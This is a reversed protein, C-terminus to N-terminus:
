GVTDGDCDGASLVGVRGCDFYVGQWLAWWGDCVQCEGGWLVGCVGGVGLVGGGQVVWVCVEVLLVRGIVEDGWDREVAHVSSSWQSRHGNFPLPGPRIIHRPPHLNHLRPAHILPFLYILPLNQPRDPDFQPNNPEHLDHNHYPPRVHSPIGNIPSHM